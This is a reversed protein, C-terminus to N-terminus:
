EKYDDGLKKKLAEVLRPYNRVLQKLLNINIKKDFKEENDYYFENFTKSFCFFRIDFGYSNNYFRLLNGKDKLFEEVTKEKLSQSGSKLSKALTLEESEKVNRFGFELFTKWADDTKLQPPYIMDKKDFQSKIFSECDYEERRSYKDAAEFFYKWWKGKKSIFTDIRAPHHKIYCYFYQRAMERANNEVKEILM